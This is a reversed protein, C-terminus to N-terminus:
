KIFHKKIERKLKEQIQKDIDVKISYYLKEIRKGVNDDVFEIIKKDTLEQLKKCGYDNFKGEIVLKMIEEIKEYIISTFIDRNDRFIKELREDIVNM